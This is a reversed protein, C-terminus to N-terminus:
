RIRQPHESSAAHQGIAAGKIGGIRTAAASPQLPSQNVATARVENCMQDMLPSVFKANGRSASSSETLDMHGFLDGDYVESAAPDAPGRQAAAM